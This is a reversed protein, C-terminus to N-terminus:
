HICSNIQGGQRTKRMATTHLSGQAGLTLFVLDTYDGVDMQALANESAFQTKHHKHRGRFLYKIYVNSLFKNLGERIGAIFVEDDWDIRTLLKYYALALQHQYGMTNSKM